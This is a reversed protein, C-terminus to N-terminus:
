DNIRRQLMELVISLETKLTENEEYLFHILEDDQSFEQKSYDIKTIKKYIQVTEDFTLRVNHTSNNKIGTIEYSDKFDIWIIKPPRRDWDADKDVSTLYKCCISLSLSSDYEKDNHDEYIIEADKFDKDM